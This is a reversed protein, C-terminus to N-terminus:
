RSAVAVSNLDVRVTEGATVRVRRTVTLPQGDRSYEATLTYSFSKGPELAPSVFTRVSSTSRTQVGDVTLRASAPLNVVLTAPSAVASVESEEEQQKGKKGGEIKKTGTGPQPQQPKAQPKSEVAATCGTCVVVGGCAVGSCVVGSCSCGVVVVGSCHCGHCGHCRVKRVRGHCGSCGHCGRCGSCVIVGGCGCGSCGCGRRGFDASEGGATMAALLVVSYM